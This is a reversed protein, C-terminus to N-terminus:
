SAATLVRTSRTILLLTLLLAVAATIGLSVVNGLLPSSRAAVVMQKVLLRHLGVDVAGALAGSMLAGLALMGTGTLRAGMRIRGSVALGLWCAATAAVTREALQIISNRWIVSMERPAVLKSLLMNLPITGMALVLVAYAIAFLAIVVSVRIAPRVATGYLHGRSETRAMM